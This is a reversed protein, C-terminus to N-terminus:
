VQLSMNRLTEKLIDILTLEGIGLEEAMKKKDKVRKELGNVVMTTTQAKEVGKELAM